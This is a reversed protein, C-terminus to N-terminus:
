GAGAEAKRIKKAKGYWSESRQEVTKNSSLYDRMWQPMRLSSAAMNGAQNRGQKPCYTGPWICYGAQINAWECREMVCITKNNTM